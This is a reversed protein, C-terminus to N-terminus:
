NGLHVLTMESKCDVDGRSLDRQFNYGYYAFGNDNIKFDLKTDQNLLDIPQDSEIPDIELSVRYEKPRPRIKNTLANTETKFGGQL